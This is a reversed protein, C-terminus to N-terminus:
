AQKRRSWALLGAAGLGLLAVTGPEPVEKLGVIMDQNFGTVPIAQFHGLGVFDGSVGFIATNNGSAQTASTTLDISTIFKAEDQASLAASNLQLIRPNGSGENDFSNATVSFRGNATEVIPTNGFWDPVKIPALTDSSGDSFHLTATLTPPGSASGTSGSFSLQTLSLPRTFTLTGTKTANNLLLVNNGQAPQILYTSLPDSQAAVIGTTVGHTPSAPNLGVEYWTDGSKTTSGDM